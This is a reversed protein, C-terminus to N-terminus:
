KWLDGTYKFGGVIYSKAEDKAGTFGYKDTQSAYAVHYRFNENSSPTFEAALAMGTRKFSAADTALEDKKNESSEFKFIPTWAGMSKRVEAVISNTTTAKAGTAVGKNSNALYDLTVDVVGLALSVGLNMNTINTEAGATGTSGMAYGINLGMMKDMLSGTYNLLMNHRKKPAAAADARNTAQFAFKHDGMTYAAEFGSANGLLDSGGDGAAVMSNLYSDAVLIRGREFGGTAAQIFGASFSLDGMTKTLYLYEVTGAAGSTLTALNLRSKFMATDSLKGDFDLNGTHPTFHSNGEVDAGTNDTYKATNQYDSRVTLTGGAFATASALTVAALLLKKM